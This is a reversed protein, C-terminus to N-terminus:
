RFAPLVETRFLELTALVDEQPLGYWQARLIIHTLGAAELEKLAAIAGAPDTFLYSSDAVETAKEATQLHKYADGQQPANYKAYQATLEGRAALGRARAREPDHDLLLERRVVLRNVPKGLRERETRYHGLIVQLREPDVHPPVIWADGLRAARLAGAKHPGAGIWIEPGGPQVPRLSIKEGDISFHEGQHTVTEGAWLGRIISISEEFRGVRQDMGVGFSAFENERYGMGFGAVARGGTIHDLTAFDEAVDVPHRLPLIFMNTGLTMDGAESAMAALTPVPQLTPMGGLYHQLMWVSEIGSQSAARVQERMLAIRDAPVVDVPFDNMIALGFKLTM